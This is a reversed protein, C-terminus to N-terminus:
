YINQYNPLPKKQAVRYINTKQQHNSSFFSCKRMKSFQLQLEITQLADKQQM